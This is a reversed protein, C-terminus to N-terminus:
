CGMAAHAAQRGFHHCILSRIIMHNAGSACGVFTMARAPVPDDCRLNGLSNAHLAAAVRVSSDQTRSNQERKAVECNIGWSVPLGRMASFTQLRVNMDAQKLIV